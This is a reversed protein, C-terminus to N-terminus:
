MYRQRSNIIEHSHFTILSNKSTHLSDKFNTIYFISPEGIDKLKMDKPIRFELIECAEHVLNLVDKGFIVRDLDSELKRLVKGSSEMRRARGPTDGLATPKAVNEPGLMGVLAPGASLGVDIAAPFGYRVYFERKAKLIRHGIKIATGVLNPDEEISESYLVVFLEDAIWDTFFNGGKVEDNIIQAVTSYYDRMARGLEDVGVRSTLAQYERWDSSICVCFRETPAFTEFVSKGSLAAKVVMHPSVERMMADFERAAQHQAGRLLFMNGTFTAIITLVDVIMAITQGPYPLYGWVLISVYAILAILAFPGHAACFILEFVITTTLMKSGVVIWEPNTTAAIRLAYAMWAALIVQVIVSGKLAIHGMFAALALLSGLGIMTFHLTFLIDVAIPPALLPDALLLLLHFPYTVIVVLWFVMVDRQNLRSEIYANRALTTRTDVKTGSKRQLLTKIAM